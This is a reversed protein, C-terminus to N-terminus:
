PSVKLLELQKCLYGERVDFRSVTIRRGGCRRVLTDLILLGPIITHVRDPCHRLIRTRAEKDRLCLEETLAHLQGASFQRNDAGLRYEANILKLAARATGGVGCIEPHDPLLAAINEKDTQDSTPIEQMKKLRCLEQRIRKRIQDQEETKPLFKKVYQTHLNLSGIPLSKALRIAGQDFVVLETSGGGIDVLLGSSLDQAHLSGRYDLVAEEEGSLLDISFGTQATIQQVAEETNTINRLSATAFVFIHDIDFQSLLERFGTLSAAAQRIGAPSLAGERVYGALGAMVKESFLLHFAEGEVQYVCLRITNSGIDIVANKM